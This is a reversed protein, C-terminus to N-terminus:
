TPGHCYAEQCGFYFNAWGECRWSNEHFNRDIELGVISFWIDEEM